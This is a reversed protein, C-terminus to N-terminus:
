PLQYTIYVCVCLTALPPFHGSERLHRPTCESLENKHSESLFPYSSNGIHVFLSFYSTFEFPPFTIGKLKGTVGRLFVQIQLSPSVVVFGSQMVEDSTNERGNQKKKCPQDCELTQPSTHLM